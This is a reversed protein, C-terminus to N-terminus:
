LQSQSTGGDPLFMNVGKTRAYSRAMTDVVHCQIHSSRMSTSVGFTDLVNGVLSSLDDSRQDLSEHEHVM